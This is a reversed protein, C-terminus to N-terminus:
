EVGHQVSTLLWFNWDGTWRIQLLGYTVKFGLGIENGQADLISLLRAPLEYFNILGEACCCYHNLTHM